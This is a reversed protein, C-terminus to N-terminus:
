HGCRSEQIARFRVLKRELWSPARSLEPDAVASAVDRREGGREFSVSFDGEAAAVEHARLRLDFFPVPRGTRALAALGPDSSALVRVLDSQHGLLDLTRRVVLHNSEGGETRLNSYMAFSSETKLGLYPSAGNLGYVLPLLLLLAPRPVFLEAPRRRDARALAPLAWLVPPVWVWWLRQFFTNGLGAVSLLNDLAGREPHWSYALRAAAVLAAGVPVLVAHARAAAPSRRLRAVREFLEDPAFLCLLAIAESSFAYFTGFGLVLHFLAGGAVALGRTRGFLLLLPLGGEIALTAVALPLCLPEGAPLHLFPLGRRVLEYLAVACSSEADFFGRNLKHWASWAYLALLQLRLAPALDRLLEGGRRGRALGLAMGVVLTGNAFLQTIGLNSVDPFRAGFFAAQCAALALLAPVSAPRALVVLACLVAAAGWGPRPPTGMQAHDLVSAVAHLTAFVALRAALLEPETSRQAPRM